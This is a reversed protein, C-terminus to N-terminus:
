QKDLLNVALFNELETYMQTKDRGWFMGRGQPRDDNKHMKGSRHEVNRSVYIVKVGNKKLESVYQDLESINSHPDKMDQM